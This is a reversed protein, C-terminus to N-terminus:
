SRVSLETMAADSATLSRNLADVARAAEAKEWGSLGFSPVPSHALPQLSPLMSGQGRLLELSMLFALLFSSLSLPLLFHFM